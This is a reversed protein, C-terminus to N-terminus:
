WAREVKIWVGNPLALAHGSNQFMETTGDPLVRVRAVADPGLAVIVHACARAVDETTMASTAALDVVQRTIAPNDRLAALASEWTPDSM